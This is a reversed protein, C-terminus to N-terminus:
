CGAGTKACLWARVAPRDVRTFQQLGSECLQASGQEVASAIAVLQLPMTWGQEVGGLFVPGGSDGLCIRANDHAAGEPGNNLLAGSDSTFVLDRRLGVELLLDGVTEAANTKGYGALTLPPDIQASQPISVLSAPSLTSSVSDLGILAVDNGLRIQWLMGEESTPMALGSTEGFWAIVQTLPWRKLNKSEKGDITRQVTEMGGQFPFFVGLHEIPFKEQKSSDFFCHTATLFWQKSILTGTCIHTPPTVSIDALVGVFGYRTRSYQQTSRRADFDFTPIGISRPVIDADVPTLPNLLLIGGRDDKPFAMNIRDLLATDPSDRLAENELQLKTVGVAEMLKDEPINSVSLQKLELRTRAINELERLSGPSLMAERASLRRSAIEDVDGDIKDLVQRDRLAKVNSVLAPDVGRMELREGLRKSLQIHLAQQADSPMAEHSRVQGHCQMSLMLLSLATWPSM